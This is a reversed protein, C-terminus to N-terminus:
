CLELSFSPYRGIGIGFALALVCEGLYLQSQPYTSQTGSFYPTPCGERKDLPVRCQVAFM